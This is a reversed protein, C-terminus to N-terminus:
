RRPVPAPGGSPAARGAPRTRVQGSATGAAVPALADAAIADADRVFDTWFEPRSSGAQMFWRTHETPIGLAYMGAVPRGDGDIPHYPARTVAVGGTPFADDGTGNVFETLLAREHLRRTLPEPDLPLNPVPVRADILTDVAVESGAVQPSGVTFRGTAPDAAFRTWPGAIRLVGCDILALLQRLRLRPPGVALFASRPVYWGLFDRRYSRPGLAAYDVLLRIIARTDRIVDLAAKLPSDANGEEAHALDALVTETLEARYEAPGAFRRGEYPRALRDLDLDPLDAMGHVAAIARVDPICGVSTTVPTSGSSKAAETVEAVFRDAADRGYRRRIGTAHYVLQIEALLWPVVDAGFDLDPAARMARVREITFLVPTYRYAHHKQNRGRAPLPVGSRSGAVLLPERGSPRYVLGGRGGPEFRGGRGITLAAMVDYFSLGLGIIGVPSGAPVAELPMD